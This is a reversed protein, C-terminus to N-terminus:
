EKDESYEGTTALSNLKARHILANQANAINQESGGWAKIASQQLARGYSFTLNWPKNNGLLQNMRNLHATAHQDSQGGSLFAIGPVAAPM